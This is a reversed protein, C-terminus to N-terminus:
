ILRLQKIEIEQLIQKMSYVDDEARHANYSKGFLWQYVDSQKFSKGTYGRRRLEEKALTYASVIREINFWKYYDYLMGADFYLLRLVACDYYVGAIPNVYIYTTFPNHQNFFENLKHCADIKRMGTMAEKETIGHIKEAEEQWLDPKVKLHLKDIENWHEDCVLFFAEIIESASNHILGSTESDLLLKKM